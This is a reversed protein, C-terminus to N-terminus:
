CIGCVKWIAVPGPLVVEGAGNCYICRERLASQLIGTGQCDPCIGEEWVDREATWQPADGRGWAEAAPVPRAGTDRMTRDYKSRLLPDSLISYARAAEKFATETAIDGPHLDPHLARAVHRFANRIEDADATRDVGLAEYLDM